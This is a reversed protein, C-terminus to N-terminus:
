SGPPRALGTLAARGGPAAGPAREVPRGAAPAPQCPVPYSFRRDQPPYSQGSLFCPNAALWHRTPDEWGGDIGESCLGGERRCVGFHLHPATANGSTGVRGIMEGRQVAQGAVVEVASLHYYVTVLDTDHGVVILRGAFIQSGTRLVVGDAAALVPTGTAARIDIGAHRAPRAVGGEGRWEGFRSVVPPPVLAMLPGPPGEGPPLLAPRAPEIACGTVSLLLGLIRVGRTLCRLPGRAPARRTRRRWDAAATRSV